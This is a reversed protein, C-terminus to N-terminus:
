EKHLPVPSGPKFYIFTNISGDRWAHLCLHFINFYNFINVRFDKNYFYFVVRRFAIEEVIPAVIASFIFILAIGFKDAKTLLEIIASSSFDFGLKLSIFYSLAATVLLPLILIMELKFATPIYSSKWNTLALKDRLGVSKNTFFAVALPGILFLLQSPVISLLIKLTNHSGLYIKLSPIRFLPPIYLATLICFILVPCGIEVWKDTKDSSIYKLLFSM